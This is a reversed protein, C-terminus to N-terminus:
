FINSQWLLKNKKDIHGDVFFKVLKEADLRINIDKYAQLLTCSDLGTQTVNSRLYANM